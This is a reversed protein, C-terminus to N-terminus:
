TSTSLIYTAVHDCVTTCSSRPTAMVHSPPLAGARMHAQRTPVINGREFALQRAFLKDPILRLSELSNHLDCRYRCKSMPKCRNTLATNNGHQTGRHQSHQRTEPQTGTGTQPQLRGEMLGGHELSGPFLGGVKGVKAKCLTWWYGTVMSAYKALEGQHVLCEKRYRM